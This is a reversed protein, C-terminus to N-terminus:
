PCGDEGSPIHEIQCYAATVSPQATPAQVTQGGPTPYFTTTEQQPAPPTTHHQVSTGSSPAPTIGPPKPPINVKVGITKAAKNVDKTVTQAAHHEWPTPAWSIVGASYLAMMCLVAIILLAIPSRAM